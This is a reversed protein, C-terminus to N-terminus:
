KEHICYPTCGYLWVTKWIVFSQLGAVLLRIARMVTQHWVCVVTVCLVCLCVYLYSHLESHTVVQREELGGKEPSFGWECFKTRWSFHYGIGCEGVVKGPSREYKAHNGPKWHALQALNHLSKLFVSLKRVKSHVMFLTLMGWKGGVRAEFPIIQFLHGHSLSNWYPQIRWLSYTKNVSSKKKKKVNKFSGKM